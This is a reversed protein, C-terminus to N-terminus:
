QAMETTRHALQFTAIPPQSAVRQASQSETILPQSAIRRAPLSGASPTAATLAPTADKLSMQFSSPGISIASIATALIALTFRNM